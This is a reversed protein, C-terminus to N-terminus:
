LMKHLLRQGLEPAPRALLHIGFVELHILMQDIEVEEM